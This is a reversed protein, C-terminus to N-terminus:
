ETKTGVFQRIRAEEFLKNARELIYDALQIHRDDRLKKPWHMYTKPAADCAKRMM